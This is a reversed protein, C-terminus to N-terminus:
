QKVLSISKKYPITPQYSPPCEGWTIDADQLMLISMKNPTEPKIRLYVIGQEGCAFESNGIFYMMYAKLDKQFGLGNFKITTDNTENFSNYIINGNADTVKMRGILKDRRIGIEEYIGKKLQIEYTKGNYTGKWTSIYKNLSNNIDKEYNYNPCNPNTLCQAAEELSIVQANCSITFFILTFFLYKM